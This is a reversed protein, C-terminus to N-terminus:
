AGMGPEGMPTGAGAADGAAGAAAEDPIPEAGRAPAAFAAAVHHGASKANKSLHKEPKSMDNFHHTHSFGGSDAKETLISELQKKTPTVDRLKPSKSGHLASM